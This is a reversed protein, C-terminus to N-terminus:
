RKMAQHTMLLLCFLFSELDNCGVLALKTQSPKVFILSSSMEGCYTTTGPFKIGIPNSGSFTITGRATSICIELAPEGEEVAINKVNKVVQLVKAGTPATVKFSKLSGVDPLSATPHVCEGWDVYYPIVGGFFHGQMFLMEWKRVEGEKNKGSMAIHDSEFGLDNPIFDDKMDSLESERIAFHFPVFVGEELEALKVGLPGPNKENPGIVELYSNNDLRVRFGKTGLGTLGGVTTPRVGTMHEFSTMAEPVNSCALIIHDIMNDCLEGDNSDEVEEDDEEEDGDEEEEEESSVSDDSDAAWNLLLARMKEDDSDQPEGGDAPLDGADDPKHRTAEVAPSPEVPVDVVPPELKAQPELKAEPESAPESEAVEPSPESEAPSVASEEAPAAVTDYETPDLPAANDGSSSASPKSSKKKKKKKDKKESKKETEAESVDTEEAGSEVAVAQDKVKDKSSSTKSSKKKKDKKKSKEKDEKETEEESVDTEDAGGEVAVAQDKVKDKSSSPKSSKKKKKKDEKLKTEKDKKSSKKKSKKKSKEDGEDKEPSPAEREWNESILDEDGGGSSDVISDAEAM